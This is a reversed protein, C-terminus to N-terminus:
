ELYKDVAKSIRKKISNWTQAKLSVPEKDEEADAFYTLAQPISILLLQEPIKKYDPINMLQDLLALTGGHITKRYLM